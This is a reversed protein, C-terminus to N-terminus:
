HRCERLVILLSKCGAQPSAIFAVIEAVDEVTGIRKFMALNTAMNEFGPMKDFARRLTDTETAGVSISNVTINKAAYMVALNRSITDLAAKAAAYPLTIDGQPLQSSGSSIFIIRGEAPMVKFSQRALELPTWAESNMMDNWLNHPLNAVPPFDEVNLLAANSVMIDIHDVDLQKLTETVVSEGFQLDRVDGKILAAKISGGLDKIAQLTKEGATKNSAYTIAVHSCGNRALIKAIGAGIGRSGGTVLAVKGRLPAPISEIAM